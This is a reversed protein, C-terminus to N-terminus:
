SGHLGHCAMYRIKNVTVLMWLMQFLVFFFFYFFFLFNSVFCFTICFIWSQLFSLCTLLCIFWASLYFLITQLFIFFPTWFIFNISVYHSLLTVWCYEVLQHILNYSLRAMLDVPFKKIYRLIHINIMRLSYLFFMFTSGYLLLALIPIM